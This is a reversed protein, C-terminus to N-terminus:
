VLLGDIEKRFAIMLNKNKASLLADVQESGCAECKEYFYLVSGETGKYETQNFGERVALLGEECIPCVQNGM